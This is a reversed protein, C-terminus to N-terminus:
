HEREGQVVVFDPLVQWGLKYTRNRYLAISFCGEGDVFGVIWQEFVQGKRSITRVQCIKVTWIKVRISQTHCKRYQLIRPTELM